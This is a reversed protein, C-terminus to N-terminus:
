LSVGGLSDLKPLQRMIIAVLQCRCQWRGKCLVYPMAPIDPDDPAFYRGEMKDCPECVNKDLITTYVIGALSAVNAVLAAQRGASYAANVAGAVAREVPSTPLDALRAEVFEIGLGGVHAATMAEGWAQRVRGAISGSVQTAILDTSLVARKLAADDPIAVNALGQAELERRVDAVGLRMVPDLVALFAAVEESTDIDLKALAAALDGGRRLLRGGKEVLIRGRRATHGLITETLLRTAEDLNLEIQAFDIVVGHSALVIASRPLEGAIV